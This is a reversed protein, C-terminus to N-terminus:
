EATDSEESALDGVLVTALGEGTVAWRLLARLIYPNFGKTGVKLGTLAPM